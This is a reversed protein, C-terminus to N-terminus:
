DWLGQSAVMLPSAFTHPCIRSHSANSACWRKLNHSPIGNREGKVREMSKLAAVFFHLFVAACNEKNRNPRDEEGIQIASEQGFASIRNM